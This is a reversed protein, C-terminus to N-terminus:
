DRRRTARLYISKTHQVLGFNYYPKTNEVFELDFEWALRAVAMRMEVYALSRDSDFAFALVKQRHMGNSRLSVAYVYSSTGGVM